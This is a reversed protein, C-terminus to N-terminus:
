GRACFLLVSVVLRFHMLSFRTKGEERRLAIQNKVNECFIVIIIVESHKDKANCDSKKVDFNNIYVCM